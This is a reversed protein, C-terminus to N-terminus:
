AADWDVDQAKEVRLTGRPTPACLAHAAGVAGSLWTDISEPALIVGMRHHIDRVDDSPECTVTAVQPVAIGGPGQWTDTIAAFVLLAGDERTIRWATKKRPPGTWEYWGDAPVIARGVGAFASKAFVTESRANVITEMVPRGRANTRGVPILGWRARALVRDPGALVIEQGPAINRRPIEPALPNGLDLAAAVDSLPTELLFRGPM